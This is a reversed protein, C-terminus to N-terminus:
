EVIGNAPLDAAQLETGDFKYVRLQGFSGSGASKSFILVEAKGDDDINTMWCDQIVGDRHGVTGTVLRDTEPGAVPNDSGYIYVAYSGVSRASDPGETCRMTYNKYTEEIYNGPQLESEVKGVPIAGCIPGVPIISLLCLLSLSISPPRNM